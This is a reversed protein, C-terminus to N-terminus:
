YVFHWWIKFQIQIVCYTYKFHMAWARMNPLFAAVGRGTLGVKEKRGIVRALRPTVGVTISIFCLSLAMWMTLWLCESGADMKFQGRAKLLIQRGTCPELVWGRRASVCAQYGGAGPDKLLPRYLRVCKERNSTVCCTSAGTCAYSQILPSLPGPQKLTFGFLCLAQNHLCEVGAWRPSWESTHKPLQLQTLTCCNYM